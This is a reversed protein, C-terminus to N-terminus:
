MNEAKKCEFFMSGYVANKTLLYLYSERFLFLIVDADQEVSGSERIDSMMPRNNARSEGLSKAASFLYAGGEDFERYVSKKAISM